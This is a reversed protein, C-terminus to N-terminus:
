KNAQRRTNATDLMEQCYLLIEVKNAYLFLLSRISSKALFRRRHSAVNLVAMQNRRVEVGIGRLIPVCVISGQKKEHNLTMVWNESNPDKLSALNKISIPKKDNLAHGALGYLPANYSFDREITAIQEVSLGLESIVKFKGNEARFVSLHDGDSPNLGLIEGIQILILNLSHIIANTTNSTLDNNSVRDAIYCISEDITALFKLTKQELKRADVDRGESLLYILAGSFLNIFPGLAIFFWGTGILYTFFVALAALILLAPGGILRPHNLGDNTTAIILTLCIGFDTLFIGFLKIVTDTQLNSFM